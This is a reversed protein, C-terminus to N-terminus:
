NFSQVIRSTVIHMILKICIVYGLLAYLHDGREEGREYSKKEEESNSSNSNRSSTNIYM